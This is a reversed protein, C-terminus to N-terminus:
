LLRKEWKVNKDGSEVRSRGGSGGAVRIMAIDLRDQSFVNRDGGRELGM